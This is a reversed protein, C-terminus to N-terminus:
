RSQIILRILTSIKKKQEDRSVSLLAPRNISPWHHHDPQIITRGHITQSHSNLDNGFQRRPWVVVMIM